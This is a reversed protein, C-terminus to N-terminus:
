GEDSAYVVAGLDREDSAAARLVKLEALEGAVEPYTWVETGPEAGARLDGGLQANVEPLCAAVDAARLPLPWSLALERALASPDAPVDQGAECARVFVSAFLARRRRGGVGPLRGALSVGFLSAAFAAPIWVTLWWAAGYAGLEPWATLGWAFAGAGAATLAGFGLVFTGSSRSSALATAALEHAWFPAPAVPARAGPISATGQGAKARLLHRFDYVIRGGPSVFVNAGYAAHVRAVERRAESVSTGFLRVWDATSVLGRNAAAHALFVRDAALRGGAAGQGAGFLFAFVRQSLPLKGARELLVDPATALLRTAAELPNSSGSLALVPEPARGFASKMLGFFLKVLAEVAGDSRRSGTLWAVAVLGALLYFVGYVVLMAATWARFFWAAWRGIRRRARLLFAARREASGFRAHLDRGFDYQIEGSETVRLVSAFCRALASLGAEAEAQPVGSAAVLEGLTFPRDLGRIADLLRTATETM